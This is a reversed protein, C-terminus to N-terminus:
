LDPDHDDRYHAPGTEGHSDDPPEDAPRGHRALRAIGRALKEAERAQRDLEGVREILMDSIVLPVWAPIPREGSAWRQVLRPDISERAGQPHYPGVVRALPRQWEAGLLLTGARALTKPTM